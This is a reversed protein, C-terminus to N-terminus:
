DRPSPSTYLLCTSPVISEDINIKLIETIPIIRIVIRDEKIENSTKIYYVFTYSGKREERLRKSPYVKLIIEKESNPSLVTTGRPSLMVDVFTYFEFFNSRNEPNKVKVLFKAPQSLERIVIDQITEKEFLLEAKVVSSLIIIILISLIFNKKKMRYDKVKWKLIPNQKPLM